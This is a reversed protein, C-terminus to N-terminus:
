SIKSTGVLRFDLRIQLSNRWFVGKKGKGPIDYPRPQNDIVLGRMKEVQFVRIPRSGKLFTLLGIGFVKESELCIKWIAQPNHRL